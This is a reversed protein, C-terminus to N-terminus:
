KKTFTISQGESTVTLQTGDSSFSYTGCQQQGLIEMCLQGGNVNWTGTGVPTSDMRAEFSGDENFNYVIAMGSTPEEYEWSGVFRSDSGGGMFMFVILVVVIIAVIVGILGGILKINTKKPAMPAHPQTQGYSQQPMSPQSTPQEPQSMTTGAEAPANQQAVQDEFNKSDVPDNTATIGTAELQAGCSLCFKFGEKVEAGCSPCNSSM